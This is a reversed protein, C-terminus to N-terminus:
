AHRALHCPSTRAVEGQRMQRFPSSSVDMAEAAAVEQIPAAEEANCAELAANTHVVLPHAQELASGAGADADANGTGKSEM